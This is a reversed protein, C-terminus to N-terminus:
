KFKLKEEFKIKYKLYHVMQLQDTNEVGFYHCPAEIDTIHIPYDDNNQRCDLIYNSVEEFLKNKYSISSFEIDNCYICYTTSHKAAPTDEIIIRLSLDVYPPPTWQTLHSSVLGVTSKKIEYFKLKVENNYYPHNLISELFSSYNSLVQNHSSQQHKHSFLAGKEDIIYISITSKEPLCFVQITQAQNLKYIFPIVSDELVEPDFHVTSYYDQTSALEQLVQEKSELPFYQLRKNKKQFVYYSHEGPLIYRNNQSNPQQSFFKILNSFIAETRLIISTARTPTYCATLLNKTAVPYKSYNFIHTLCNFFGDIGMHQSTTVEGWISISIQEVQQVFCQRDQGYSLPDSRESVILMGDERQNVLLQGLNIFILSCLLKDPKNYVSLPSSKTHLNESLFYYLKKLIQLLEGKSLSLSSSKFHLQLQKQYLGNIVLWGLLSLLSHEQKIITNSAAKKDSFKGSFLTWAFGTTDDQSEVISLVNEKTHVTSRTTIIEIKQPKKELFAYLKRSILKLDNNERYNYDVFNGALQLVMRLCHKLQARIIIHEQSAKKIDWYKQKNLAPLLSEPWNWQDAISQMYDQRFIRSQYDLTKSTSGMIKLYFCQRALNLRHTSEAGQLYKEVKSYILFYPDLRDINVSGQYIANKLEVCLWEPNPYESAYSEMLFLKLLSKHPSDLSKYIHWLTSSIFEEAPILELGGFDLVENASIFRNEILHSIYSSYNREQHPPVLWWAPIRGAIFVATRYFEELLLYHQTNGSSEESIPIDQGKCFQQSNVLFFHVELDYSAAWKEIATSKQQLEAIETPLLEPQHCLWIDMDSTKSFAISSVSGMLFIGQIPYNLLARRKYNFGKSFQRAALIAQKNPVYDPIGAITESSIFGPLLPHNQHFLLSLLQLFIQQRPQLFAQVRQLRLQNLNKFRQTIAHLDKKSIDEGPSGLRIQPYRRTETVPYLEITM